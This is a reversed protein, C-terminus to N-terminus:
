IGINDHYNGKGNAHRVADIIGEIVMFAVLIAMVIALYPAMEGFFDTAYSFMAPITTSSSLSFNEM